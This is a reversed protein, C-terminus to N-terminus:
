AAYHLRLGPLPWEVSWWSTEMIPSTLDSDALKAENFFQILLTTISM